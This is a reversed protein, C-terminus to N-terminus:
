RGARSSWSPTGTVDDDQNIPRDWADVQEIIELGPGAPRPEVDASDDVPPASDERQRTESSNRKSADSSAPKISRFYREVITKEGEPQTKEFSNRELGGGKKAPKLSDLYRQVVGPRVELAEALTAAVPERDSGTSTGRQRPIGIQDLTAAQNDSTRVNPNDGTLRL